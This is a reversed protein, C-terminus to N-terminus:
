DNNDKNNNSEAKKAKAGDWRMVTDFDPAGELGSWMEKFWEISSNFEDLLDAPSGDFSEVVYYEDIDMTSFDKKDAFYRRCIEECNPNEERSLCRMLRTKESCNVRVVTVNLRSDELLAEVGTPNFVGINIKDKVLSNIPTGYFWNNFETAEMMDGNLVKRTFDELTIFHYDVGDKENGRKPRTTCSVISHFLLPHLQCTAQQITDKGAGAEGILAIVQYKTEM